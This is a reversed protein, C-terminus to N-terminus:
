PSSSSPLEEVLAGLCGHCRRDKNRELEMFEILNDFLLFDGETNRGASVHVSRFVYQRGDKMKMRLDYLGPPLDLFRLYGKESTNQVRPEMGPATLTVEVGVAPAHDQYVVGYLNGTGPKPPDASAPGM